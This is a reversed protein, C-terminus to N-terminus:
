DEEEEFAAALKKLEEAKAPNREVGAGEEYLQSLCMAAPAYRQSVGREYYERTGALIERSQEDDYFRESSRSSPVRTLGKPRILENKYQEPTMGFHKKFAQSFYRYDSFGSEECVDLLREKGVAILRCAHELRVSCVYDQFTQNLAEKVFHSMYHLSCQEKEAFDSLRIKQMYNEDVYDILSELRKSRKRLREMEDQDAKRVPMARLLEYFLQCTGAICVLEYYAEKGLYNSMLRKMDQRVKGLDVGYDEPFIDDVTERRDIQLLEPSVQLCLFTCSQKTKQFEHLKLPSFLLVNGEKVLHHKADCSVTMEGDVVWLLEWEPHFHPTRYDVTDFFLSLGEIHRHRIVERENM